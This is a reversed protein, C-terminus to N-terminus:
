VMFNAKTSCPFSFWSSYLSVQGRWPSARLSAVQYFLLVPVHFGAQMVRPNVFCQISLHFIWTSEVQRRTTIDNDSIACCRWPFALWAVCSRPLFVLCASKPGLIRFHTSKRPLHPFVHFDRQPAPRSACFLLSGVWRPFAIRLKQLVERAPTGFLLGM